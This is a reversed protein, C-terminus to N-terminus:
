LKLSDADKPFLNKIDYILNNKKCSKRIKDIGIIKFLTHAVAIIIGDYKNIPLKKINNIRNNFNPIDSKLYPDYVDVDHNKNILGEIIDNVKTNRIDNCNEKFTYGMILIKFKKKDKVKNKLKKIMNKSLYKGMSDNIKRGALIVKPNYGLQKSKFTLYYPDVGICHGGVLGPQFKIFNWKTAAASLVKSTNLNMKSFIMSLENVFAINLDRQANEIVKAAEAIKISEAEYIGAKVIKSYLKSIIKTIENNSGSVVKKINTVNHNKDGPNMREPSYGCYFDSNYILNSSKELIPVCIEETTGPYVTSEYIVIDGKKIHCGIHKSASKILRLDPEKKKNVPTPVTVIFINCNDIIKKDNSFFLNKNVLSKKKSIEGTVDIGRKLQLIRKSDNDYGIVLFKKSFEVALPLGVYGLGIVAIKKEKLLSM